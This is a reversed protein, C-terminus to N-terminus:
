IDFKTFIRGTSVSIDMRVSPCVSMVFSANAKCLKAFAGLFAIFRDTLEKGVVVNSRGTPFHKHPRLIRFKTASWQLSGFILFVAHGRKLFCHSFCPARRKRFCYRGTSGERLIHQKEKRIAYVYM